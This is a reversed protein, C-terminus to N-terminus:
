NSDASIQEAQMWGSYELILPKKIPAIRSRWESPTCGMFEQFHRNYSSLTAYGVQGAIDAVGAKTSRLLTCSASIRTHHLFMLPSMKMTEAFIRRFHAPSPHCEDALTDLPFTYMYHQHIYDLAPAIAIAYASSASSSQANEADYARLLKLLLSTCLARVAFQYNPAKQEIERIIDRVLWNIDPYEDQSLIMHSNRLMAYLVQNDAMETRVFTKLLLDPQFFLYSWLSQRADASYTTHPVNRAICTVDGAHFPVPTNEFVLTGSESHCFGVELCNHFHLRKSPVHSIHWADGTLVIIPFELPLEYNRYEIVTRKSRAM